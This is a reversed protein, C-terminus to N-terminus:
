FTSRSKRTYWYGWALVVAFTGFLGAMILLGYYADIPM